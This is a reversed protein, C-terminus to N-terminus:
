AEVMAKKRNIDNETRQIQLETKKFNRLHIEMTFKNRDHGDEDDLLM